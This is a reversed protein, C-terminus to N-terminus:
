YIRTTFNLLVKLADCKEDFIEKEDSLKNIRSEITSYKSDFTRQASEKISSRNKGLASTRAEKLRERYEPSALFLQMMKRYKPDRMMNIPPDVIRVAESYDKNIKSKIFHKWYLTDTLKRVGDVLPNSDMTKLTKKWHVLQTGIYKQKRETDELQHQLRVKGPYIFKLPWEKEMKLVGGYRLYVQVAESLRPDFEKKKGRPIFKKFESYTGVVQITPVKPRKYQRPM